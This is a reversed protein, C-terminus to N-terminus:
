KVKGVKLNAKTGLPEPFVKPTQTYGLRRSEQLIKPQCYNYLEGLTIWNDGNADAEGRLGKLFYYTFLGHRKSDLDQSIESADSATIVAVKKLTEPIKVPVLPRKGEEIVSRGGAGSFCADLAVVINDSPLKELAGYFRSLPYLKSIFGPEGDYPVLYADGKEPNPTGHGAFYVFVFSNKTVNRALWEEIYATLDSLAAKEDTLMMINENPIGCVNILYDRITEADRKAYKVKPIKGSRYDSIGIIVAYADERRFSTSSLPQDVDILTSIVEREREVKAPQMAILLECEKLADFGQAETVRIILNANDPEIKYPLVAEFVAMKEAGAPIDGIFKERGWYNLAKSEGSLIVKVGQATGEGHNKVVVKLSIKEGGSLIRDGNEDNITYNFVLRPPINFVTAPPKKYSIKGIGIIERAYLSVPYGSHLQNAKRWDEFALNKNGLKHHADGRLVTFCRM